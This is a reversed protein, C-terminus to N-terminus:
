PAVTEIETPNTRDHEVLGISHELHAKDLGDALDTARHWRIMLRQQERRRKGLRYAHETRRVLAIRDVDDRAVIVNVRPDRLDYIRGIM